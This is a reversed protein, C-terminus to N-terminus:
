ACQVLKFVGRMRNTIPLLYGRNRSKHTVTPRYGYRFGWPQSFAWGHSGFDVPTLPLWRNRSKHTITPTYDGSVGVTPFFAWGHSDPLQHGIM